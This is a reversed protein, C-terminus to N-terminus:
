LRAARRALLLGLPTDLIKGESQSKLRPPRASQMARPTGLAIALALRKTEAISGTLSEAGSAAATPLSKSDIKAM